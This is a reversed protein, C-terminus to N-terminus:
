RRKEFKNLITKIKTDNGWVAKSDYKRDPFAGYELKIDYNHKKIFWEVRESLKQPKGSCINIIGNVDDQSVAATVQACFDQYDLFDFQNVGTTFPFTKQGNDAAAAIKSFISHGFKSNGVIYFGRLWQFIKHNQECLIKTIKRLADKAIGYFNEPNCPTNEDISGEYFGVEHMSGMVAITHIDSHAMKDIFKIHKPLDEMHTNSFHKFGDRWALHLLVDPHGFYEYPDEIEFLNCDKKHARSDVYATSHDAAIVDIHSQLLTKVIGQGLYGNGGTILVTM